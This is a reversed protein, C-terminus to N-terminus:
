IHFPFLPMKVAFALFLCIWIIQQQQADLDTSLLVTYNMSGVIFYLYIMGFLM